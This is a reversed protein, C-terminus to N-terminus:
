RCPHGLLFCTYVTLYRHSTVDGINKAVWFPMIKYKHNFEKTVFDEDCERFSSFNNHPYEKCNKDEDLYSDITQSMSFM